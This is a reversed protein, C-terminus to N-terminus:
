RKQEHAARLRNMNVRNFLIPYERVPDPIKVPPQKLSEFRFNRSRHFIVRPKLTDVATRALEAKEFDDVAARRAAVEPVAFDM